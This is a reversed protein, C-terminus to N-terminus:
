QWSYKDLSSVTQGNYESLDVRALRRTDQSSDLNQGSGASARQGCDNGRPYSRQDVIQGM